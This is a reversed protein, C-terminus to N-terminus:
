DSDPLRKRKKLVVTRDEWHQGDPPALIVGIWRDGDFNIDATM